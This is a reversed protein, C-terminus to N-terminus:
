KQRPTYHIYPLLSHAPTTNWRHVLHNSPPLCHPLKHHNTSHTPPFPNQQKKEKAAAKPPLYQEDSAQLCVLSLFVLRPQSCSILYLHEQVSTQQVLFELSALPPGAVAILGFRRGLYCPWMHMAARRVVTLRAM